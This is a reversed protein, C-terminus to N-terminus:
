AECFLLQMLEHQLGPSQDIAPECVPIVFDRNTPPHTLHLFPPDEGSELGQASDEVRQDPDTETLVRKRILILGLLYALQAKAPDELLAELTSLLVHAPAPKPKANEQKPNRNLWWGVTGDPPGQWADRAVDWRVLQSGKALVASYYPEGPAFERETQHCRRQSRHISYEQM